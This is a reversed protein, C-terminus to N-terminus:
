VVYGEIGSDCLSYSYRDCEWSEVNAKTERKYLSINNIWSIIIFDLLQCDSCEGLIVYYIM